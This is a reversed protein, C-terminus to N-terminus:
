QMKVKVLLEGMRDMSLYRVVDRRTEEDMTEIAPKGSAGHLGSVTRLVVLCTVLSPSQTLSLLILAYPDQQTEKLVHGIDGRKGLEEVPNLVARTEGRIALEEVPSLAPPISFLNTLYKM